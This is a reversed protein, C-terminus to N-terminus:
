TPASGPERTVRVDVTMGLAVAGAGEFTGRVPSAQAPTRTVAVRILEGGGTIRNTPDFEVWGEDPICADAWAHTAGGGILGGGVPDHLYGTVFRAAFGMTRAAEMFLLAFDRCTGVGQAITTAASQTGFIDRRSYDFGGHIAGSLAHLRELPDAPRQPLAGDLWATIAGHEQAHQMAILPGLDFREEDSYAQPRAVGDGSRQALIPDHPYRRIVLTSEVALIDAADASEAVAVSNGFTDFHWRLRAAPSITLGSHLLRMDHADRPRLMLRHAGFSVPRDYRYETRHTVRLTQAM